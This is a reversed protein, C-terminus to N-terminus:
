CGSQGMRVVAGGAGGSNRQRFPQRPTCVLWSRIKGIPLGARAPCSARRSTGRHPACHPHKLYIPPPVVPAAACPRPPRATPTGHASQTTYSPVPASLSRRDIGTEPIPPPHHFCPRRNFLTFVVAENCLLNYHSERDYLFQLPCICLPKCLLLAARWVLQLHSTLLRVIVFSLM